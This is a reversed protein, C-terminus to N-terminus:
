CVQKENNVIAVTRYLGLSCQLLLHQTMAGLPFVLNPKQLARTVANMKILQESHQKKFVGEKSHIRSDKM